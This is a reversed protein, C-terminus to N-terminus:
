KNQIGSDQEEEGEEYDLDDVDVSSKGFNSDKKVESTDKVKKDDKNKDIDKVEDKNKLEVGKASKHLVEKEDPSPEDANLNLSSDDKKIQDIDDVDDFKEPAELGKNKFDDKEKEGVESGSIKNFPKPEVAKTVPVKVTKPVPERYFKLTDPAIITIHDQNYTRYARDFVQPLVKRLRRVRRRLNRDSLIYQLNKQLDVIQDDSLYRLNIGCLLRTNKHNVWRGLALVNPQPDVNYNSYKSNYVRGYGENIVSLSSIKM